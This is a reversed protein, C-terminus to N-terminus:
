LEKLREQNKEEHAEKVLFDLRGSRSDKSIQLDWDEWDMESFWTRLHIFDEKPLSEIAAKIEEINTM